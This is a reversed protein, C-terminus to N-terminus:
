LRHYDDGRLWPQRTVLDSETWMYICSVNCICVGNVPTFSDVMTDRDAHPSARNLCVLLLLLVAPLSKWAGSQATSRRLERLRGTASTPPTRTADVASSARARGCFAISRIRTLAPSPVSRRHEMASLPSGRARARARGCTSSTWPMARRTLPMRAIAIATVSGANESTFLPLPTLPNAPDPANRALVPPSILEVPESCEPRSSPSCSNEVVSFCSYLTNPVVPSGEDPTTNTGAIADSGVYTNNAFLLSGGTTGPYNPFSLTLLDDNLWSSPCAAYPGELCLFGLSEDLGPEIPPNGVSLVEYDIELGYFPGVADPDTAFDLDGFVLPGSTSEISVPEAEFCGIDTSGVYKCKEKGQPGKTFIFCDYTEDADSTPILRDVTLFPGAELM